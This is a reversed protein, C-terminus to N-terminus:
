QDVRHNSAAPAAPRTSTATVTAPGTYNTVPHGYQDAAQVTAIFSSGAGVTNGGQVRVLYQSFTGAGVLALQSPAIGSTGSGMDPFQSSNV